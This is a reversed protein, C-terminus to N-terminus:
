GADELGGVRLLACAYEFVNNVKTDFLEKLTQTYKEIDGTFDIANEQQGENRNLIKKFYHKLGRIFDLLLKNLNEMTIADRKM